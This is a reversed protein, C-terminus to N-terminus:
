RRSTFMFTPPNLAKLEDEVKLKEAEGQVKISDGNIKVNGALQMDYRTLMMGLQIDCLACLYRNFLPDAFLHEVEIGAYAELILNRDVKTLVQFRKNNPNFSTKFTIKNMQNLVDAFGDLVVKYLSFNGVNNIYSNMYPNQSPISNDMNGGPMTTGYNINAGGYNGLYEQSAYGSFFGRNFGVGYVYTVAQIEDPLVVYNHATYQESTFTTKDIYFYTKQSALYYNRYFYPLAVREIVRRIEADPLICPLAGSMTLHAQTNAITEEITYATNFM